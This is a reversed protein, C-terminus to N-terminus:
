KMRGTEIVLVLEKEDGPNLIVSGAAKTLAPGYGIFEETEGLKLNRNAPEVSGPTWVIVHSNGCAQARVRRNQSADAFSFMGDPRREFGKDMGDVCAFPREGVDAFRVQRYTGVKFYPHFGATHSFSEEGINKTRLSLTLREDLTLVLELDAAYPFAKEEGAALSYGVTVSNATRRRVSMHKNRIFGHIIGDKRGFWPWCLPIGGHSWDGNPTVKNEPM